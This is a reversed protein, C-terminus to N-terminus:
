SRRYRAPLDVHNASPRYPVASPDTGCCSPENAIFYGTDSRTSKNNSLRIPLRM